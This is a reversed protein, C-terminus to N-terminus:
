GLWGRLIEAVNVGAAVAVVCLAVALARIWNRLDEIDKAMHPLENNVKEDIRAIQKLAELWEKDNIPPM